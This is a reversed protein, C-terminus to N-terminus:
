RDIIDIFLIYNAIDAVRIKSTYLVILDCYM